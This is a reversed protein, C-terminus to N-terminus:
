AINFAKKVFSEFESKYRFGLFSAVEKGDKFFFVNPISEVSFRAALEPLQDVDVKIFKVNKYNPEVEEIVGGLHQCPNCWVAFFDVVVNGEKIAADFEAASKIEKSM